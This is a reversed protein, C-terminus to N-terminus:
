TEYWAPVSQRGPSDGPWYNVKSYPICDTTQHMIDGEPSFFAAQVDNQRLGAHRGPRLYCAALGGPVM